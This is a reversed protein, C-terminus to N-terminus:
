SLFSLLRAPTQVLLQDLESDSFGRRRALPAVHAILHGYGHGGYALLRTRTCIDHSVAIQNLYGREILARILDLRMYDTPLDLDVGGMWYQSTEIGFFDWELVFGRELLAILRDRDFITRDMHGIVTREPDGGAAIVIEAIEAPADPHRGPHITLAAGTTQQAKAAAALIRRETPTVPWSCGIEGIIGCRINTGWAGQLVQREIEAQITDQDMGDIEPSLYAQTYWGAGLIVHVGSERSLAALRESQPAMGGVTLEVITGGGAASFHELDLEAAADDDLFMNEPVRNQFYDVAFRNAMTIPGSGLGHAPSGRDGPARLDCLIHEHMLTRGLEAAAIRGTVTQAFGGM